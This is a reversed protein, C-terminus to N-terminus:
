RIKQSLFLVFTNKKLKKKKKLLFFFCAIKVFLCVSLCVCVFGNYNPLLQKINKEIFEDCTQYQKSDLLVRAKFTAYKQMEKADGSIRDDSMIVDILEHCKQYQKTKFYCNVAQFVM